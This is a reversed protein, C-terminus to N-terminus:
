SPVIRVLATAAALRVSVEADKLLAILAPVAKKAEPGILGLEDAHRRRESAKVSKLGGVLTDIDGVRGSGKAVVLKRAEEDLSTGFGEAFRRGAAGPLSFTEPGARIRWLPLSVRRPETLVSFLHDYTAPTGAFAPVAVEKGQLMARVH